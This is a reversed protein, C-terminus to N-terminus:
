EFNVNLLFLDHLCHDTVGALLGAGIECYEHAAGQCFSIRVWREVENSEYSPEASLTQRSDVDSQGRQLTLACARRASPAQAVTKQWLAFNTYADLAVLILNEPEFVLTLFGAIVLYRAPRTIGLGADLATTQNCESTLPERYVLSFDSAHYVAHGTQVHLDDRLQVKLLM